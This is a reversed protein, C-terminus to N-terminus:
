GRKRRPRARLRGKAARQAHNQQGEDDLNSSFIGARASPFSTRTPSRSPRSTVPPSSCRPPRRRGSGRAEGDLRLPFLRPRHNPTRGEDDPFRSFLPRWRRGTRTPTRAMRSSRSATAPRRRAPRDYLARGKPTLAVGRQRSRALAPPIRATRKAASRTSASRSRCRGSAPRACCSRRTAARRVRSSPKRRSAKSRCARKCPM